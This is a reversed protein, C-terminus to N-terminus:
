EEYLALFEELCLEHEMMYAAAEPGVYRLHWPEYEVGTIPTKGDPYRVVFGYEACHEELWLMLGSGGIYPEMPQSASELVDACLGSQHESCGPPNVALRTKAHAEEETMGESTYQDIHRQYIIVQTDYSRYGSCVWVPNGAARAAELMELMAPAVRGDMTQGDGVDTLQEPVFGDELPSGDRVLRLEWSTVDVDPLKPTPEPTATPKATATPRPTRTVEVTEAAVGPGGMLGVASYLAVGVGGLVLVLLLLRLWIASYHRRINRRKRAEPDKPKASAKKEKAPKDGAKASKKKGEAPKEEAKAPEEPAAPAEEAKAPEEEPVAPAEETKAPEEALAAPTEEAKAPEEVPAAPAEETKAPEEPVAPDKKSKM